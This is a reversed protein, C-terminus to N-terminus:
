IAGGNKSKRLLILVSGRTVATAEISYISQNIYPIAGNQSATCKSVHWWILTLYHKCNEPLLSSCNEVRERERERERERCIYLLANKTM